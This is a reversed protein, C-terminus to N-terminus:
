QRIDIIRTQKITSLAMIIAGVMATLLIYGLALFIEGTTTYMSAGIAMIDEFYILSDTLFKLYVFSENDFNYDLFLCNVYNEFMDFLIGILYAFILCDITSLHNTSSSNYIKKLNFLMIVFLFLISIAGIYIILLIMSLFEIKLYLLVLIMNFFVFILTLLSYIPNTFYVILM